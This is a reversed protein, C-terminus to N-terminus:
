NNLLNNYVKKLKQLAFLGEEEKRETDKQRQTSIQQKQM